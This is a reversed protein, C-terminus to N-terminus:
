PKETLAEKAAATSWANFAEVGFLSRYRENAEAAASNWNGEDSSTGPSTASGNKATTQSPATSNLFEDGLNDLATTQAATANPAPDVLAAPLRAGIPVPIVEEARGQAVSAPAVSASTIGPSSKTPAAQRTASVTTQQRHVPPTSISNSSMVAPASVHSQDPMSPIPDAPKQDAPDHSVRSVSPLASATAAQTSDQPKSVVSQAVPAPAKRMVLVSALSALLIGALLYKNM